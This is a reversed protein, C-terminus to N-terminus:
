DVDTVKRALRRMAAVTSPSPLVDPMLPPQISGGGNVVATARYTTRPRIEATLGETLLIPRRGAANLAALQDRCRLQMGATTMIITAGVGATFLPNGVFPKKDIILFIIAALLFVGVAGAGGLLGTSVRSPRATSSM